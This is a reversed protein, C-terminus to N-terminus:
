LLLCPAHATEQVPLGKVPILARQPYPTRETKNAKAHDAGCLSVLMKPGWLYIRILHILTVFKRLTLRLAKRQPVYLSVRMEKWPLLEYIPKLTIM